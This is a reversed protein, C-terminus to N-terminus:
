GVVVLEGGSGRDRLQLGRERAVHPVDISTPLREGVTQARARDRISRANRHTRTDVRDHAIRIVRDDSEPRPLRQACAGDHESNRRLVGHLQEPERLIGPERM